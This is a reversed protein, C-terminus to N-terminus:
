RWDLEGRNLVWSDSLLETANRNSAMAVYHEPWDHWTTWYVIEPYKERIARIVLTNDFTGDMRDHHPGCETLALPKGFRRYADIDRIAFDDSEYVNTGIIDVYEDGPYYFDVPRTYASDGFSVTSYVWLLNDLGKEESFYRFMDRYVERFPTGDDPHGAMGWWFWNGNMEQMPRWLVVVGADRLEQLGGAIRDLERRWKPFIASRPDSLEQMNVANLDRTGGDTWPNHPAWNITVLGGAKWYDILYRNCESLQEPTFRHTYEYDVGILGPWHGTAEHLAAVHAGYCRVIENGHCCNQGSIVRNSNGAPLAALYALLRYTDANARANVPVISSEPADQPQKKACSVPLLLLLLIPYFAKMTRIDPM